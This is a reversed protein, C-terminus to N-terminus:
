YAEAEGDDGEEANFDPPGIANGAQARLRRHQSRTLAGSLATRLLRRLRRNERRLAAVEALSRDLPHESELIRRRLKAMRPM